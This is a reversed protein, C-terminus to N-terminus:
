TYALSVLQLSTDKFRRAVTRAVQKMVLFGLQQDEAFLDWLADKPFVLAETEEVCRGSVTYEHPEVFVSWGISGGARATYITMRRKNPLDLQLAVRGKVLCYLNDASRGEEFIQEGRAFQQVTALAALREHAATDLEKFLRIGDIQSVSAQQSAMAHSRKDSKCTSMREALAQRLDRVLRRTGSEVAPTLGIEQVPRHVVIGWLLIPPLTMKLTAALQLIGALNMSHLSLSAKNDTAQEPQVASRVVTGPALDDACIADLLWIEDYQPALTLFDPGLTGGDLCTVRPPMPESRLLEVARIGAGDDGILPNGIGLLLLASPDASM